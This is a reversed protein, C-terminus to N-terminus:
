VNVEIKMENCSYSAITHNFLLATETFTDSWAPKTNM